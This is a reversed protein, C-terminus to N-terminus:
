HHHLDPLCFLNSSPPRSHLLRQARCAWCNREGRKCGALAGPLARQVTRTVLLRPLAAAPGFHCPQATVAAHRTGISKWVTFTTAGKKEQPLSGPTRSMTHHQYIPHRERVAIDPFFYSSQPATLIHTTEIFGEKHREERTPEQLGAPNTVASGESAGTLIMLHVQGVEAPWKM